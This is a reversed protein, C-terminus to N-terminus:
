PALVGAASISRCDFRLKGTEELPYQAGDTLVVRFRAIQAFTGGPAFTVDYPHLTLTNTTGDTHFTSGAFRPSVLGTAPDAFYFFGGVYNNSADYLWVYGDHVNLDEVSFTISITQAVIDLTQTPGLTARRIMPASSPPPFAVEETHMTTYSGTTTSAPAPIRALYWADVGDTLKVEVQLIGIPLIDPQWGVWRGWGGIFKNTADFHLATGGINWYSGDLMYIRAYQIDSFAIDGTYHIWFDYFATNGNAPPTSWFSPDISEEVWGLSAIAVTPHPADSASSGGCATVLHVSIAAVGALLRRRIPRRM